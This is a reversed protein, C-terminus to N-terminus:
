PCRNLCAVYTSQCGARCAARATSSSLNNCRSNCAGLGITCGLSCSFQAHVPKNSSITLLAALLILSALFIKRFATM